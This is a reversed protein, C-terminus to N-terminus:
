HEKYPYNIWQYFRLFGMFCIGAQVKWMKFSVRNQPSPLLCQNAMRSVQEQCAMTNHLNLWVNYPRQWSTRVNAYIIASSESKETRKNVCKWWTQKMDSLLFYYHLKNRTVRILHSLLKLHNKDLSQYISTLQSYKIVLGQGAKPPLIAWPGIWDNGM